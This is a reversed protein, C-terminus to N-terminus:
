IFVCCTYVELRVGICNKIRSCCFRASTRLVKEAEKDNMLLSGNSLFAIYPDLWSPELKSTAVIM